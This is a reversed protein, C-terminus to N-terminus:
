LDAVELYALFFRVGIGAFFPQETGASDFFSFDGIFGRYEVDLLLRQRDRCIRSVVIPTGNVSLDFYMNLGNQRLAIQANQNALVISLTQNPLAVIPIQIM